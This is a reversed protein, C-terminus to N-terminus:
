CHKLLDVTGDGTLMYPMVCCRLGHQTLALSMHSCMCTYLMCHMCPFQGAYLAYLPITRYCRVKLQRAAGSGGHVLACTLPLGAGAVCQVVLKHTQEALVKSSTLLLALPTGPVYPLVAMPSAGPTTSPHLRLCLPSLYVDLYHFSLLSLLM